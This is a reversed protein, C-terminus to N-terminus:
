TITLNLPSRNRVFTKIINEKKNSGGMSRMIIHHKEYYIEKVPIRNKRTEILLNYHKAYDM